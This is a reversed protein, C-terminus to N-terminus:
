IKEQLISKTVEVFREVYREATFNQARQQAGQAMQKAFESDDLYRLIARFLLKSDDYPALLGSVGAEIIERPGGENGAVVPKGLAMAEVVVIGFPERNSAHVIVDMAQMWLPVDSQLGVLKVQEQLGLDAIRGRLFDSYDAELAHEGGVIVCHADPHRGAILPMAEILVHAGKWRQLRGVLGIIPGNEPLNLQARAQQPSPLKQPNFREVPAGLHVTYTARAPHMKQQAERAFDSCTYIARAPIRTALRDMWSSQSSLGLNFWLAPLRALIAAPGSYLHAKHMWGCVADYKGRKIIRAIKFVTKLWLIPQRLQGARAIHVDWGAKRMEAAMPGDELFVVGWDRTGSEPYRTLDLLCQEAGGRQQAVPMVILIKMRRVTLSAAMVWDVFETGIGVRRKPRM